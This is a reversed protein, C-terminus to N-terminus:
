PLRQRLEALWNVVVTIETAPEAAAHRMMLFRAADPATAFPTEYPSADFLERPVSSEFDPRARVSASSLGARTPGSRFFLENGRPSWRPYVGSDTSVQWRRGGDPLLRVYVEYRGSENSHYALWRGDPSIVAASESFPTRVLPRVGQAARAADLTLLWIDTASRPDREVFAITRSDHSWSTPWQEHESTTLRESSGGDAPAVFLNTVPHGAAYVVHAGDPSWVASLREAPPPTASPLPDAHFSIRTSTTKLLDEIWVDRHQEEGKFRVIRTGDDSLGYFIGTSRLTAAPTAAGSRDVWVLEREIPDGAEPALALSGDSSVALQAGGSRSTIVREALDVAAGKTELTSLDFRVAQLGEAGVYVLYNLGGREDGIFRGFAGGNVVVRGPGGGIPAVALQARDFEGGSWNTYLVHRGGPLLQPWRHSDGGDPTTLPAAPGGNAPVRWLGSNDRPAILITDDAIWAVGRPAPAETLTIPSGGEVRIKKLTDDAFFGLWRGDPSFFPESAGETGAVPASEGRGIASLMLRVVGHSDAAYVLRQGDPSLAVSPGRGLALASGPPVRVTVRRPQTDARASQPSRTRWVVIAGALALVAVTVLLLRSRL